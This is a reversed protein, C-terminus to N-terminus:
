MAYSDHKSLQGKHSFPSRIFVKILILNNRAYALVKGEFAWTLSDNKAKALDRRWQGMEGNPCYESLKHWRLIQNLDSCLGKQGEQEQEIWDGKGGGDKKNCVVALKRMVICFDSTFRFSAPNPYNSYSVLPQDSQGECANLCPYTKSGDKIYRIDGIKGSVFECKWIGGFPLTATM